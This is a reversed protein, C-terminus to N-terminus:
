VFLMAFTHLGRFFCVFFEKDTRTLYRRLDAMNIVGNVDIIM